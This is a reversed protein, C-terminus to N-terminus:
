SGEAVEILAGKEPVLAETDNFEEAYFQDAAVLLGESDYTPFPGKITVPQFVMHQVLQRNHILMWEDPWETSAFIPLGKINGAYGTANLIANEFGIRSFGTWNSLDEARTVSCLISTPQYFRNRVIRKAVGILRVLEAYDDQTIGETWTGAVNSAGLSLAASLGSWMMGADIKRRMYKLLGAMNRATADWNLQSRSFLVAERSIQDALRDAAAEIVKYTNPVKIRQISAMEGERMAIYDYETVHVTSPATLTGGMTKIRGAAYDIVYDTGEVYEVNEAVNEVVLTGRTIRGHGLAYWTDQLTCVVTEASEISDELGAEATPALEYYLRMPSVDMLGVEFVNAAILDPWAAEIVARSVSYPLNLDTTLEAEAFQRAEQILHQKFLVDFRELLRATWVQSATEAKRLDIQPKNERKRLSEVLEFSAKAFEPTGTEAELVSGITMGTGKAGGKFGMGGLKLKSALADYEKRKSEVLSKVAAADQPNAAKVAEVFQENMEKGYPLEKTAETIAAEIGTKREAEDFKRAKESMAKLSEAISAKADIGLAERLKEEMAKLQAEGMKKIQAETVGEFLEPHEKLLKLLEEITVEDDGQKSELMAEADPFSPELVLDFGTFHAETVEEVSKGNEKVLKSEGYGRLSVGPSIGGEMLALLDKGKSTALLNGGLSVSRGDFSVEDWKVVTELLNSRRTGKDSPHEAEGLIQVARGQGATENLRGRVEDVAERIVGAPYRRGNGNVVDAVIVDSAKISRKGEEGELLMVNGLHEEFKKGKKKAGAASRSGAAVALGQSMLRLSAAEAVEKMQPQYTLEVIEWENRPAFSYGADTGQYPVRFYEDAALDTGAGYGTVIVHGAFTEAIYYFPGNGGPENPFQQAFDKEIAALTYSISGKVLEELPQGKGVTFSEKLGEPVEEKNQRYHKRLHSAASAKAATSLSPESRAGALAAAAAGLGGANLVIEGGSIEHHPGWAKSYSFEPKGEADKGFAEPPVYAYVESIQARTVDGEAYGDALAKGLASKDVDGWSRKSVKSSNIKM